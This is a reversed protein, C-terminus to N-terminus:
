VPQVPPVTSSFRFLPNQVEKALVTNSALTDYPHIVGIYISKLFKGFYIKFDEMDGKWEKSIEPKLVDPSPRFTEQFKVALILSNHSTRSYAMFSQKDLYQFILPFIDTVELFNSAIVHGHLAWEQFSFINLFNLNLLKKAFSFNMALVM